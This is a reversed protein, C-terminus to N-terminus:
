STVSDNSVRLLTYGLFLASLLLAPVTYAGPFYGGSATLIAIHGISNGLELLVWFWLFFRASRWQRLVPFFYTLFAFAVVTLNIAVFGHELDESVLSSAIRAPAFVEWLSQSYEEASHLLQSAAIALMGIKVSSHM